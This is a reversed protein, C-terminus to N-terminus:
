CSIKNGTPFYKLLKTLWLCFKLVSLAESKTFLFFILFKENGRCINFVVRYGTSKSIQSDVFLLHKGIGFKTCKSCVRLMQLQAAV